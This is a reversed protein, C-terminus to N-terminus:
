KLLLMKKMATFNESILTYFYVGSTLNLAANFNYSYNGAQKFDNVLTTIEKGLADYVKLTVQSSKPISFSIKTVPNFPNPYNQELNFDGPIELDSNSVGSPNGFRMVLGGKGGSFGLSPNVYDMHSIGSVTGQAPLTEETWTAGLNTTTFCRNTSTGSSLTAVRILNSGNKFGEMDNVSFSTIGPPNTVLSWNLGGNTTKRFNGNNSGVMGNNADTFAVGQYYLGQSTGTGNLIATSWNGGGFGSSKFVKSSSANAVTNAIGIWITGTDLWDWSNVLGYESTGTPSNPSLLWNSGGNTTYRFQFPQGSTATPDGMYIGYNLSFMKIGDSFSNSISFQNIWSLGGDSTRYISGAATGIWCNLSDIASIGHLNGAPIGSNRLVWNVGGNTSRYVRNTDCCVWILNQNVVSITNINPSGPITSIVTWQSQANSFTFVILLLILKKM